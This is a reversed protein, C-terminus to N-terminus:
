KLLTAKNYCFLAVAGCYLNDHQNSCFSIETVVTNPFIKCGVRVTIKAHFTFLFFFPVFGNICIVHYLHLIHNSFDSLISSILFIEMM